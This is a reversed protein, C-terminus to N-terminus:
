RPSHPHNHNHQHQHTHQALTSANWLDNDLPEAAHLYAHSARLHATPQDVPCYRRPPTPKSSVTVALLCLVLPTRFMTELPDFHRGRVPQPCACRHEQARIVTGYLINPKGFVPQRSDLAIFVLFAACDCGGKSVRAFFIDIIKEAPYPPLFCCMQLINSELRLVRSKSLGGRPFAATTTLHKASSHPGCHEPM